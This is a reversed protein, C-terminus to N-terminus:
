GSALIMGVCDQYPVRRTGVGLVGSMLTNALADLDDFGAIHGLEHEVVTLLDIRDVARPDVAQLQRASRSWAFEEDLAPTSDIFWGHGAANVDLYIRNATALAEGLDSGPLDGIVFQVHALKDITAPNLGAATWRAIAESIIPQLDNQTLPAVDSAPATVVSAAQLHAVTQQSPTVGGLGAWGTFAGNRILWAGVLGTSQNYWLVDSTKDGNFDGVGAVKWVTPDATGLGAWGTFAGNKIIWAGVLGTSQNQWLVDSTKDGNFDGVGAVKWTADVTGLTAWGMNVGNKIIWTGVLGTSQNFWLVDSTGGANFDGVGAVKWTADVTGLTAWGSYASNKIIWAGVLGNFQNQWLVDSTKDGNFDGVGAVKWATADVTALTVWGTNVGKKIIWTGVLGTSQNFWLLDSTGDGNFDGVGAVKWVTPDAVGLDAWSATAGNKIIWADVEGTSQNHWLVDSTGDGNFDGTGIALWGPDPGVAYSACTLGVTAINSDAAGDNAKYTFSDTGQYGSAPTYTFSGNANLTLTGHSPGSVQIATLPYGDADTDNALVGSAPVSLVTGQTFSYSDNVAVPPHSAAISGNITLSVTAVNSDATGDNAKYTFSDAGHYGSTPTYTFSGNANLTLTGHSPGSVQVATLLDGDADTDNVLVGAAPVTLVTDQNLSYSDNVAVPPDNVPNVTISVTATNSNATGDNARYTFSDPGNYNAAPLYTFSGNANLTLTGHSATAVLVATLPNGDVDTDNALVGPATVSLTTDENTSYSDNVAVPPDNVPNVTISVTATNSNATGDNARYTFSDPGNYNAAPLYTFSGNANLTLTGHSATAVLVATLPNGDVDTDNALVGPATVSLTTDENTSYSDNVAVPPHNVANITLSVTAVNSDAAGDNAKYTFSDAGHYGSTPTYTFSGNANLTLTGHSPGTVQAATLPNGDADTDNVLVGAAPVTLVTDQNLGYSDNVAVPPNNGGSSALQVLLNQSQNLTVQQNSPTYGALSVQVQFPGRTDTTIVSPDTGTQDYVTTVVPVFVGGGALGSVTLNGCTTTIAVNGAVGSADNHLTCSNAVGFADATVGLNSAANIAAVLNAMTAEIDSGITVAVHGSIVSSNSDFEFVTAPDVGDSLTVTDGDSPQATLTLSGQAQTSVTGSQSTIYGNADTTGSFIQVGDKDLVQVTAGALATGGMNKVQVGLLWGISVDKTGSGSWTIQGTAGGEYVMDILQINHDQQTYYGAVIGQYPLTAGETSKKITNSIFLTDYNDENNYDGLQLSINNSEFTNGRIIPNINAGMGDLVFAKAVNGTDEAIAKCLNNEFLIGANDMAGNNNMYSIWVAYAADGVADSARAIFTNDHVHINLHPGEADVDNRIRLARARQYSNDERNRQEQVDVYNGYIDGNSTPTSSGGDIDIGRGNTTVITNNAITFNDIATVAIAYSNTCVEEMRIDNNFISVQHGTVFVVSIGQQGTGSIHNNQILVDGDVTNVEIAMHGDMRNSIATLNLNFTNNTATLGGQMYDAIIGDCDVGYLAIGVNDVTVPGYTYHSYVAVDGYGSTQGQVLSGNQITMTNPPAAAWINTYADKAAQSLNDYGPGFDGPSAYSIIAGYDYSRSLFAHDLAVTETEGNYPTVEVKIRVADTTTAFFTVPALIGREVNADNGTALVAQTVNDIVSITM